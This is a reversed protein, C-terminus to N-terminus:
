ASFLNNKDLTRADVDLWRTRVVVRGAGEIAEAANAVLNLVVQRGQTVDIQVVLAEPSLEFDLAISKRISARLLASMGDVMESLDVAQITFRGRGAYAVLQRTLTRAELATDRVIDLHARAAHGAPLAPMALEARGLIVALLNNFDHAVGGALVGLSELKQARLLQAHAAELEGTRQKVLEELRARYNQLELEALSQATIDTLYVTLGIIEGNDGQIPSYTDDYIRRQMREDGYEERLTFHEGALARDFNRRAKDRDDIRGIVELMSDGVRVDVGWISKIARAHNQNFALYRYERDLAFIVIDPPSELVARLVAQSQQFAGTM